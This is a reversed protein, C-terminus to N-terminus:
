YQKEADWTGYVKVSAEKRQTNPNASVVFPEPIAFHHVARVTIVEYTGNHEVCLTEGIRPIAAVNITGWEELRDEEDKRLSPFRVHLSVVQSVVV